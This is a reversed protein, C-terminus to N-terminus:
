LLEPFAIEVPGHWDDDQYDADTSFRWHAAWRQVQRVDLNGGTWQSVQAEHWIGRDVLREIIRGIEDAVDPWGMGRGYRLDHAYSGLWAARERVNPSNLARAMRDARRAAKVLEARPTGLPASIVIGAEDCQVQVSRGEGSM